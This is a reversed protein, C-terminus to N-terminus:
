IRATSFWRREVTRRSGDGGVGSDLLILTEPLVHVERKHVVGKLLFGEHTEEVGRGGM